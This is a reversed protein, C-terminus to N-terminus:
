LRAVRPWLKTWAESAKFVQIGRAEPRARFDADPFAGIITGSRVEIIMWGDPDGRFISHREAVIYRPSWGIRIVTGDMISGGRASDDQGRKHLYFTESDEWQELRYDGIITRQHGGFPFCGSTASAVLLVVVSIISTSKM